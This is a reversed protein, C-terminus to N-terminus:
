KFIIPIKQTAIEGKFIEVNNERFNSLIDKPLIKEIDDKLKYKLRFTYRKEPNLKFYIPRRLNEETDEVVFPLPLSTLFVYKEKAPIVVWQDYFNVNKSKLNYGMKKFLVEKEDEIKFHQELLSFLKCSYSPDILPESKGLVNSQEDEIIIDLNYIDSLNLNKIFFLYKKDTNNSLEFKVVNTFAYKEKESNFVSHNYFSEITDISFGKSVIDKNMLKLEMKKEQCSALLIFLLVVLIKNKM